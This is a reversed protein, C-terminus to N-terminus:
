LGLSQTVELRKELNDKIYTNRGKESKWRGHKSIMRDSVGNNAAASAGGSRLSHLGYKTTDELDWVTSYSLGRGKVPRHGIKLKALRPILYYDDSKESSIDIGCKELFHETFVM